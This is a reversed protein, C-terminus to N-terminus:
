CPMVCLLFQRRLDFLFAYFQQPFVSLMDFVQRYIKSSKLKGCTLSPSPFFLAARYRQSMNCIYWVSLIELHEPVTDFSQMNLSSADEWLEVTLPHLVFVKWVQITTGSLDPFESIHLFRCIHIYIIHVFNYKLSNIKQYTYFFSFCSKVNFKNM